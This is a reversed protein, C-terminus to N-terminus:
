RRQVHTVLSWRIQLIMGAAPSHSTARHLRVDHLIFTKSM